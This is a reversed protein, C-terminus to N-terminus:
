SMDFFDDKKIEDKAIRITQGAINQIVWWGKFMWDRGIVMYPMSGRAADGKISQRIQRAKIVNKNMM